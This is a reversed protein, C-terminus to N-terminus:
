LAHIIDGLTTKLTCCVDHIHISELSRSEIMVETRAPMATGFHIGVERATQRVADEAFQPALHARMVMEAEDSRKLLDQTVHLAAELCKLLDEYSPDEGYREIFLRTFSRQSHTILPFSNGKASFLEENYVQTCPCATIHSVSLGITEKFDL